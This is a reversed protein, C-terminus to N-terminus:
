ILRDTVLGVPFREKDAINGSEKFELLGAILWAIGENNRLVSFIFGPSKLPMFKSFFLFILNDFNYKGNHNYLL